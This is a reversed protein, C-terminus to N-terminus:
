KLFKYFYNLLIETRDPSMRAITQRIVTECPNGWEETTSLEKVIINAVYDAGDDIAEYIDNKRLEDDFPKSETEKGNIFIKVNSNGDSTDENEIVQTELAQYMGVYGPGGKYFLFVIDGPKVEQLRETRWSEGYEILSLIPNPQKLREGQVKPDLANFHWFAAGESIGFRNRIEDVIPIDQHPNDIENKSISEVVAKQSPVASSAAIETTEENDEDVFKAIISLFYSNINQITKAQDIITKDGKSNDGMLDEKLLQSIKPKIADWNKLKAESLITELEKLKKPPLFVVLVSLCNNRVKEFYKKTPESTSSQWLIDNFKRYSSLKNLYLNKKRESEEESHTQDRLLILTILASILAGIFGVILNPGYERDGFRQFMLIFTVLFIIIVIFGMWSFGKLKM